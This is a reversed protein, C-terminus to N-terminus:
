WLRALAGATSADAFFVMLPIAKVFANKTVGLPVTCVKVEKKGHCEAYVDIERTGDPKKREDEIGVGHVPQWCRCCTPFGTGSRNRRDVVVDDRKMRVPIM